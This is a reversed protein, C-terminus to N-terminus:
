AEDELERLRALRDRARGIAEHEGLDWWATGREGLGEKAAQVRRRAATRADDDPATRVASRARGLASVLAARVEEPLRPDARRWRRGRVVVYRETDTM